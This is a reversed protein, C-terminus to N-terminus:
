VGNKEAVAFLNRKSVQSHAFMDFYKKSFFDKYLNNTQLLNIKFKAKSLESKLSNLTQLNCHPLKSHTSKWSRGKRLYYVVPFLFRDSVYLFGEIFIAPLISFPYLLVVMKNYEIIDLM